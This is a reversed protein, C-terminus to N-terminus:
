IHKTILALERKKKELFPNATRHSAAMVGMDVLLRLLTFNTAAPIM